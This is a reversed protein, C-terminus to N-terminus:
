VTKWQEGRMRHCGNWNPKHRWGWRSTERKLIFLLRRTTLNVWWNEARKKSSRDRRGGQYERDKSWCVAHAQNEENSWVSNDWEGKSIEIRKSFRRITFDMKKREESVVSKWSLEYYTWSLEMKDRSQALVKTEVKVRIETYGM